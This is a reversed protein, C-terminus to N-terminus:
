TEAQSRSRDRGRQSERATKIVNCPKCLGQYNERDDTGGEAKPIIHDAIESPSYRPPDMALCARCLPEERLVRRRM